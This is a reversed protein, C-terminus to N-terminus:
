YPHGEETLASYSICEQSFPFLPDGLLFTQIHYLRHLLLGCLVRRLKKFSDVLGISFIRVSIWLGRFINSHHIHSIEWLAGSILFFSWFNSPPIHMLRDWYVNGEFNVIVSFLPLWAAVMKKACAGPFNWRCVPPAQGGDLVSAVSRHM